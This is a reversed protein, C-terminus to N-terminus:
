CPNDMLVWPSNSCILESYPLIPGKMKMHLADFYVVATLVICKLYVTCIEAEIKNKKLKEQSQCHNDTPVLPSNSCTLESNPLIPGKMKM